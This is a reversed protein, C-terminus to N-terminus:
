LLVGAFADPRSLALTRALRERYEAAGSSGTLLGVSDREWNDAYVRAVWGRIYPQFVPAHPAVELLENVAVLTGAVPSAIAIRRGHRAQATAIPSGVEVRDVAWFEVEPAHWLVERLPAAVGVTVFGDEDPRAWVHREADYHVSAPLHFLVPATGAFTVARAAITARDAIVENQFRAYFQMHRVEDVLQTSLFSGEEEESDQALVLGCFQTSIREEAVMLSSLVWYLLNREGEEMAAWDARDRSLDVDQAAWHAREWDEYLQQPAHLTM